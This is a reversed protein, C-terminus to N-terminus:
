SQLHHEWVQLGRQRCVHVYLNSFLGQNDPRRILLQHENLQNVQAHGLDAKWRTQRTASTRSTQPLMDIQSLRSERLALRM